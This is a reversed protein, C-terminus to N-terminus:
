HCTIHSATSMPLHAWLRAQNQHKRPRQEAGRENSRSVKPRYLIDDSVHQRVVTQVPPIIIIIHIERSPIPFALLIILVVTIVLCHQWVRTNTYLHIEYKPLKLLFNFGSSNIATSIPIIDVSYKYKNYFFLFVQSFYINQLQSITSYNQFSSDPDKNRCGPKLAITLM